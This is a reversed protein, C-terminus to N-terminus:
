RRRTWRAEPRNLIESLLVAQRLTARNALMAILDAAMRTPARSVRDQPLPAEQAMPSQSTEGSRDSLPSAKHSFVSQLHQEIRDDAQTVDTEAHLDSGLRGFQPSVMRRVHEAVSTAPSEGVVQAPVPEERRQPKPPRFPGAAPDTPAPAGATAPRPGERRRSARQLFEEIERTLPDPAGGGPPVPGPQQMPRPVPQGGPKPVPGGPRPRQAERLTTAIQSVVHIIIFVVVVIATLVGGIDAAVLPLVNM